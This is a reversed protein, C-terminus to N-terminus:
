SRGVMTPATLPIPEKDERARNAQKMKEWFVPRVRWILASSVLPLIAFVVFAVGYNGYVDYLKGMLWPGIAFGTSVMATYIGLMTGLQSPGYVHKTMVGTDLMVASHGIARTVIFAMVILPSALGFALVVSISLMVWCAALGKNSSRDLINGVILRTAIGMVGLGSVALAVWEPAMGFDNFILVQHQTFAMDVGGVLFVAIGILWFRPERIITRLPLTDGKSAAALRDERTIRHGFSMRRSFLGFVLLPLAVIWIGASITAIGMRWGFAAITVTIIFPLIISGAVTGLLAMGMATGQSAHFSRSILVKLAVMTGGSAFGLLVGSMYYQTLNDIWLFSILAAGGMSVTVILSLWAGTWDVVRGVAIAAIAGVAYKSSALLTVEERNWGFEKIAEPFIFPLAYAPAAFGFLFCVFAILLIPWNQRLEARFAADLRFM